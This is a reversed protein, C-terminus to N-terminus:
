LPRSLLCARPMCMFFNRKQLMSIFWAPLWLFCVFLCHFCKLRFTEVVRHAKSASLPRWSLAVIMYIRTHGRSPHAFSSTKSCNHTHAHTDIHTHKKQQLGSCVLSDLRTCRGKGVRSSSTSMHVYRQSHWAAVWDNQTSTLASFM